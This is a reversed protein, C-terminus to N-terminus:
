LLQGSTISGCLKEYSARDTAIYVPRVTLPMLGEEAAAPILIDTIKRVRECHYDKTNLVPISGLVLMEAPNSQWRFSIGGEEFNLLKWDPQIQLDHSTSISTSNHPNNLVIILENIQM